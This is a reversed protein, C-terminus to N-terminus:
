IGGQIPLRLIMKFAPSSGVEMSSLIDDAKRSGQSGPRRHIRRRPLSLQLETRRRSDDRRSKQSLTRQRRYMTYICNSKGNTKEVKETSCKYEYKGATVTEGSSNNYASAFTNEVYVAGKVDGDNIGAFAGYTSEHVDWRSPFTVKLGNQDYVIGEDGEIVSFNNLVARVHRLYLLEYINTDDKIEQATLTIWLGNWKGVAKDGYDLTIDLRAQEKVTDDDGDATATVGEPLNLKLQQDDFSQETLELTGTDAPPPM